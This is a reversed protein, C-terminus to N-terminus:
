GLSQAGGCDPPSAGVRHLDAALTSRLAPCIPSLATTAASWDGSRLMETIVNEYGTRDGLRLLIAATEPARATFDDAERANTILSQAREAQGLTVALEALELTLHRNSQDANTRVLREGIDLLRHMRDIDTLQTAIDIAARLSRIPLSRLPNTYGLRPEIDDLLRTARRHQGALAAEYAIDALLDTTGFSFDIDLILQEARDFQQTSAAASVVPRMARQRDLPNTITRALREAADVLDNARDLDGARSAIAALDSLAHAQNATDPLRQVLQEAQTFLRAHREPAAAAQAAAAITALLLAHHWLPEISTVAAEASNLLHEKKAHDHVPIISAAITTLTSVKRDVDSILGIILDAREYSGARAENLAIDALEAAHGFDTTARAQHEVDTLISVARESNGALAAARAVMTLVGGRSAPQSIMRALREASDWRGARVAGEAAAALARDQDDPNDLECGIRESRDLDGAIASSLAIQILTTVRALRHTIGAARTEAEDLLVRARRPDRQAAAAAVIALAKARLETRGTRALHEVDDLQQLPNGMSMPSAAVTALALVQPYVEENAEALRGVEQLLAAVGDEDGSTAASEAIAAFVIAQRDTDRLTGAITQAEDLLQRCRAHDQQRAAARAAIVLALARPEDGAIRHAIDDARDVQGAQEAAWVVAVAAHDRADPSHSSWALTEAEDLLRESRHRQGADAAAAVLGSLAHSRHFPIVLEHALHEARDAHGLRAWVEPLGPPISRGRGNLRSQHLVLRVLTPYDVPTRDFLIEHLHVIEHLATYDSGSSVLMRDHRAPDTATAIMRPLDVLGGLFAGYDSLLYQPTDAPWGRQRYEEAWEHLRDRWCGLEHDLAELAAQRLQEHGLIYIEAGAATWPSSRVSFTRSASTRLFRQITAVPHSTLHALDQLTLGGNAATLLGLLERGLRDDAQVLVDLETLAQDRIVTARPSPTLVRVIRDDRLPHGPAVDPPVPPHPRGAVIVRMGHRLELPLVGAISHAEPGVAVGRDEDLGDVLLVFQEGHGKCREAAEDLLGLLHTERTSDSMLPPMTEGLLALVQELLNDVFAARTNQAAWRATIFYSVIRVGPPPNLVLWSLLATKGSWAEAQWWGYQGAAAPATCFEALEALEAARDVLEAPAIRRVQNVYRNVVPAGPAMTADGIHIGSNAYGGVAATAAGTERVEARRLVQPRAIRDALSLELTPTGRVRLTRM